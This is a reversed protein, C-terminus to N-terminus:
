FFFHESGASNYNESLSIQAAHPRWISAKFLVFVVTVSALDAELRTPSVKSSHSRDIFVFFHVGVQDTKLYSADSEQMIHDSVPFTPRLNWELTM